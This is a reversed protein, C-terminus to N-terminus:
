PRAFRDDGDLLEGGAAVVDVLEALALWERAAWVAETTLYPIVVVEARHDLVHEVAIMVALRPHETETTVTFVVELEHQETLKDIDGPDTETRRLM